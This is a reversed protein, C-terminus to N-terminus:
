RVSLNVPALMGGGTLGGNLYSGQGKSGANWSIKVEANTASLGKPESGGVPTEIEGDIGGAVDITSSGKIYVEQVGESTIEMGVGLQGKLEAGVPGYRAVDTGTEYGVEITGKTLKGSNLNESWGLKIKLGLETDIDFETTMKNCEIKIKTFPKIDFEEVYQCNVSDFDPLPGRRGEPAEKKICGVEIEPRLSALNILFGIKMSTIEEEYVSRDTCAYLAYNSGANLVQKQLSLMKANNDKLIPNAQSLFATTLALRAECEEANKLANHYTERLQSLVRADSMSEESLTMIREQGWQALKDLKRRATKYVANNYPKLLLPNDALRKHYAEAKVKQVKRIKELAEIASNVKARFDDWEKRATEATIGGQFPYEPISFMFEEIGLPEAKVPYKFKIDEFKVQYGLENLQAEKESTYNEALSRKLSEISEKTQGQSKQIQSKTQNAQSHNKYIKVAQDLHRNANSIDGLGFWAQGMNNLITSNNPFSRNLNQLIPLAAHEGGQMTLFAAYNNLINADKMNAGCEKGMIYLSIEPYGALWLNSAINNIENPTKKESKLTTYIKLAETKDKQDLLKEVESHVKMVYPVLEADTLIKAPLQKIRAVDKKPTSFTEADAAQQFTNESIGSVTKKLGGMMEVQKKLMAIQDRYGKITEEDEKNKIADALQKELDAIQANLENTAEALQGQMQNKSPVQEPIPKKIEKNVPQQSLGTNAMFAIMLLLLIIRM